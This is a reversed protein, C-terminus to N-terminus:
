CHRSLDDGVSLRVHDSWTKSKLTRTFLSPVYRAMGLMLKWKIFAVPREVFLHISRGDSVLCKDFKKALLKLTNSRFFGIHQGHEPGYYWWEGFKPAPSPILTTSFLLNPAICFMKELECIPDSFHEFVEFATVLDAKGSEYEFGRAVLNDCFGDMWYADVGKDRLLRVLFGYGGAYDVVVGRSLGLVALSAFVLSVNLSNRVMIGTDSVNIPSSYAKELWMPRQTQVYGCQPCEFYDVMNGLLSGTFIFAKNAGCVRCKADDVVLILVKGNFYM